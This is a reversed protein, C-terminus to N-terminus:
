FLEADLLAEGADFSYVTPCSGFIAFLALMGGVVWLVTSGASAVTTAGTSVPTQYSEMAAIDGLSIEDVEFSSSLSLDFQEGAGRVRGNAVTVGDSFVVTSGDYLHAKVPSEIIIPTEETVDVPAVDLRHVVCSSLMLCLPLIWSLRM